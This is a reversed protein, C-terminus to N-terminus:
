NPSIERVFAIESFYKFSLHQVSVYRCSGKFYKTITHKIGFNNEFTDCIWVVRTGSMELHSYTLYRTRTGGLDTTQPHGAPHAASRPRSAGSPGTQSASWVSCTSMQANWLMAPLACASLLLLINPGYCHSLLDM